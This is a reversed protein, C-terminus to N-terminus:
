RDGLLPELSDVLGTHASIRRVGLLVGPMFARRDTTDQRLSLLQGEAGFLVEQHALLGPLRVSHIPVGCERDGRSTAAGDDQEARHQNLPTAASRALQRATDLATGSPADIKGDHHLEIIEVDSFHRAAERAFRQLLIVGLAFNPAMLLGLGRERALEGLAAVSAPALGTTGSVAHCGAELITRLNGEVAEPNTFEIVVDPQSSNLQAALDDGLDTTGVLELDDAEGVAAVCAQGM